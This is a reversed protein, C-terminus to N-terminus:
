SSFLPLRCDTRGVACSGGGGGSCLPSACGERHCKCGRAGLAGGDAAGLTAIHAV